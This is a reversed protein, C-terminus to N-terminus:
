SADECIKNFACDLCHKGPNAQYQKKRIKICIENVHELYNEMKISKTQQLIGDKLFYVYLDVSEQQYKAKFCIGYFALQDSYDKQEGTKFDLISYSDESRLILDFRGNIMQNGIFIDFKEEVSSIDGLIKIKKFNAVYSKIQEYANAKFKENAKNDQFWNMKWYKDFLNLIYKQDVLYGKALAINVLEIIRHVNSGFQMGGTRITQLRWDHLYMYMKPCIEYTKLASYSINVPGEEAMVDPNSNARPIERLDPDIVTNNQIQSSLQFGISPAYNRNGSISKKPYSICLFNKARTIGVYFLRKEDDLETYPIGALKRFEDLVTSKSNTEVQYPLFVTHYELGKARHITQIKVSNIKESLAQDIKRNRGLYNLYSRMWYPDFSKVNNDYNLVIETLKGLNQGYDSYRSLFDVAEFIDYILGISSGYNSFNDKIDILKAIYNDGFYLSYIDSSIEQLSDALLDLAQESRDLIFDYIVLFEKIYFQDTLDGVGNMEFPIERKRLQKQLAESQFKASRFLIAVDSFSSIKGSNKLLVIQDTIWSAEEDANEFTRIIPHVGKVNRTPSLNKEFRNLGAQSIFNSYFAVLQETSRYNDSLYYKEIGDNYLSINEEFSLLNEVIAGRFAYISQDDDGVVTLTANPGALKILLENQLNNTDQYEDVFIHCFHEKIINGFENDSKLVNLLELQVLAFDIKKDKELLKLYLHYNAVIEELYSNNEYNIDRFNIRQDTILSYINVIDECLQWIKGAGKYEERNFGLRALKSNIYSPLEDESIIEIESYRGSPHLKLIDLCISHITGILIPRNTFHSNDIKRKLRMELEIASNRTFTCAIFGKGIYRPDTILQEILNVLETTKGTGPGSVILRPNNKFSTM